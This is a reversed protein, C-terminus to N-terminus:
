VGPTAPWTMKQEYGITFIRAAWSTAQLSHNRLMLEINM